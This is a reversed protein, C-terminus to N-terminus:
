QPLLSSVRGRVDRVTAIIRARTEQDDESCAIEVLKSKHPPALPTSFPGLVDDGWITTGKESDPDVARICDANAIEDRSVMEITRM